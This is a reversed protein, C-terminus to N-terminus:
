QRGSLILIWIFFEISLLKVSESYERFISIGVCVNGIFKFSKGFFVLSTWSKLIVEVVFVAIVFGVGVFTGWDGVPEDVEVVDGFLGIDWLVVLGFWLVLGLEWIDGAFGCVVEVFDGVEEVFWVGVEWSDGVVEWSDGVVEWSDGVVEWSDGVVEWSDWIVEWSDGVVEGVNDGVVEGVEDGVVEGVEDGVEVVVVGVFVWVTIGLDEDNVGPIPFFNFSLVLSVFALNSWLIKILYFILLDVM